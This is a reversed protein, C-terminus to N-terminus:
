THIKHRVEALHSAKFSLQYHQCIYVSDSCISGHFGLAEDFSQKEIESKPTRRKTNQLARAYPKGTKSPSAPIAAVWGAPRGVDMVLRGVLYGFFLLPTGSCHRRGEGDNRGAEARKIGHQQQRQRRGEGENDVGGCGTISTSRGIQSSQDSSLRSLAFHPHGTRSALGLGVHLAWRSLKLLVSLPERGRLLGLAERIEVDVEATLAFVETPRRAGPQLEEEVAGNESCAEHSKPPQAETRKELRKVVVRWLELYVCHCNFIM